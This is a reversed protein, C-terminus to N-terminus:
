FSKLEQRVFLLERVVTDLDSKSHAASVQARLRATGEPVVPYGFGTIFVGRKFLADAVAIAKATDGIIIPVIASEGPLPKFGVEQLQHRFYAVNEHLTKLREPEDCMVQLAALAAGATAPSIANSFLNTRANQKLLEIVHKRGAVYGGAAGGLAKGLTGTFIDVRAACHYYEAVGAGTAGMVGVGHSDDVILTGQYKDALDCIAPLPALSGEMSFVGDTIIFRHRASLHEKLVVELAKLDAHPYVAKTVGKGVMRCGDIISAHNLTDSIIVDGEGCISPILGTNAAWCSSFTLAAETGHLRALEEELTEHIDMSGCIFRVSATGAGYKEVAEQAAKVVRPHNALGLYNNSSMVVVDRQGSMAARAAMPSSLNRYRKYTGAQELSTLKTKVADDFDNYV